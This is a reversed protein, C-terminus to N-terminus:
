AALFKQWWEKYTAVKVIEDILAEEFIYGYSQNLLDKM